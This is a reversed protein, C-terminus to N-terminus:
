FRNASLEAAQIFIVGFILLLVCLCCCSVLASERAQSTDSKSGGQKIM